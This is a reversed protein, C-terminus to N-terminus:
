VRLEDTAKEAFQKAELGRERHRSSPGGFLKGDLTSTFSTSGFRGVLEVNEKLNDWFREKCLPGPPAEAKRWTIPTGFSDRRAHASLM